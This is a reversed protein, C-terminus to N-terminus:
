GGIRPSFYAIALSRAASTLRTRRADVAQRNSSRRGDLRAQNM